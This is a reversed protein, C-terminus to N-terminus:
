FFCMSADIAASWFRIAVDFSRLPTRELSIAAAEVCISESWPRIASSRLATSFVV